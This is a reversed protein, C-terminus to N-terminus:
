IRQHAKRWRELMRLARDAARFTPIGRKELEASFPDYLPGSDVIAIFPKDMESSLRGLREPLSNPRLIDEGHSLPGGALTNLKATLPIIGV